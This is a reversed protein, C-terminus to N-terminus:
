EGEFQVASYIDYGSLVDKGGLDPLEVLFLIKTVVGGLKEVLTAAAKMSGGTAILDDILLIKQGKTIADEHVEITATGYELEYSQEVTKYPLKGKKRIPIFPKKFDKAIPAGLIFGRSEIGAVADFEVNELQKELTDIALAFGEGDGLLTTIDRFMIGKQPFDPITRIYDKITKM